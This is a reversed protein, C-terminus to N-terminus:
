LQESGKAVDLHAKAADGPKLSYTHTPQYTHDEDTHPCWSSKAHGLSFSGVELNAADM